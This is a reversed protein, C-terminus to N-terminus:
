MVPIGFRASAEEIFGRWAAVSQAQVPTACLLALALLCRKLSAM